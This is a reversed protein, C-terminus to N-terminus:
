KQTTALSPPMDRAASRRPMATCVMLVWTRSSSRLRPWWSSLGWPRLTTSVWAPSAAKAWASCIKWSPSFSGSTNVAAVAAGLTASRTPMESPSGLSAMGRRSPGARPASFRRSSHWSSSNSSRSASRASCRSSKIRASRGAGGLPLTRTYLWANPLEGKCHNPWALHAWGHAAAARASWGVWAKAVRGRSSGVVWEATRLRRFWHISLCCMCGLTTPSNSSLASSAVNAAVPM